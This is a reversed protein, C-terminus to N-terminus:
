GEERQMEYMLICASVGANLSDVRGSQPIRVVPYAKLWREAIGGGENGVVVLCPFSLKQPPVPGTGPAAATMYINFRAAEASFLLKELSPYVRFPVDLLATQSARLFRPNWPRVGDGTLVIGDVGFAAACRFATGANAPDQLGDLAVVARADQWAFTLRPEEIVAILDPADKLRSIRDLVGRGTVWVEDAMAADALERLRDHVILLRMKVRRELLDRVLKEGEFVFMGDLGAALQKVRPNARSTIDLIM